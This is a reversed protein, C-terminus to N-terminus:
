GQFGVTYSYIHIYISLILTKLEILRGSEKSYIGLSPLAVPVPLPSVGLNAISQLSPFTYLKNFIYVWGKIHM